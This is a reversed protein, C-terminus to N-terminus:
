NGKPAEMVPMNPFIRENGKIVLPMGETLGEGAIAALNTKYGIVQVPIMVAMGDVATFVVNQGFRKVVADRPILLSNQEKLTPVQVDIRMGEILGAEHPVNLEIPFTRTAADAVPIVSKLTVEVEHGNITARFSKYTRLTGILRAPINLRAELSETAVLTAVTAGKGVWEGVDVNRSAIVADFPARISSKDLRIRMAELENRTAEVTARLKETGYFVQDYSSQSISNREHLAKTRELDREQRKLDAELAKVASAVAAIDAKLVKSDLSLLIDGKKIQQGESFLLTGVVGENESAVKSQKDYYLTGVYTQLPNVVGQTIPATTVLSPPPTKPEDASFLLSASSILLVSLLHKM